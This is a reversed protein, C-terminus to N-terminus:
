LERDTVLKGVEAVAAAAVLDLSKEETEPQFVVALDLEVLDKGAAALLSPGRRVRPIEARGGCEGDTRGESVVCAAVALRHERVLCSWQVWVALEAAHEAVAAQALALNAAVM